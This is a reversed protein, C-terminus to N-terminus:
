QTEPDPHPFRLSICLVQNAYDARITGGMQETLDKAIYLGLGTSNSATEVTYFRDFLRMVQLENLKSAHNSFTIEGNESLTIILDGDSYKIANGIINAFIRSLASKNLLCTIKNEPLTVKPEIRSKKLAAYYASLIEELASSLVVREYSADSISSSVTFYRFLEETLMKLADMRNEIIHLYRATDEPSKSKKLLDLYGYIATLPTRLDHSINTISERIELNGQQYRLRESRLYRLQDNLDAALRRMHRDRSSIDILTNTETMFKHALGERIEDASKQLLVIKVALLLIACILIVVLIWLWIEM